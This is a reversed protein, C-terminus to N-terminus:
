EDFVKLLAKIVTLPFHVFLLLINMCFIYVSGVGGESLLLLLLLVVRGGFVVVLISRHLLVRETM